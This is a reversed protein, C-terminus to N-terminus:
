WWENGAPNDGTRRLILYRGFCNTLTKFGGSYFDESCKTYENVSDSLNDSIYFASSLFVYDWTAEANYAVINAMLVPKSSGLDM